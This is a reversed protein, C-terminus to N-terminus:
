PPPTPLLYPCSFVHYPCSLPLSLPSHLNCILLLFSLSFTPFSFVHYPCSLHLSLPPHLNCILILSSLFFAPFPFAPFPSYSPLPPPLFLYLPSPFLASPFALPSSFLINPAGIMMRPHHIVIEHSVWIYVYIYM